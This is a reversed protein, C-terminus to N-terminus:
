EMGLRKFVEEYADEVNGLDRRFRDKDLKEGTKSDWLRCTDPSIEDALIIEGRYRGFEVKFDILEIGLGAFYAKLVENIKFVYETIKDIEERTAVGIAIAYYDNIM